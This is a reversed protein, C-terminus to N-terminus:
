YRSKLKSWAPIKFHRKRLKQNPDNTNIADEDNEVEQSNEDNFSYNKIM